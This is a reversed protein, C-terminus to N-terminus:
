KAVLSIHSLADFSLEELPMRPNQPKGPLPKPSLNTGLPRPMMKKPPSSQAPASNTNVFHATMIGSNKTPAKPNEVQIDVLRATPDYIFKEALIGFEADELYVTVNKGKLPPNKTRNEQATQGFSSSVTGIMAVILLVFTTNRVRRTM